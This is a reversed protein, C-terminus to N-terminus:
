LKDGRLTEKDVGLAKYVADEVGYAGEAIQDLKKRYVRPYMMGVGPFVSYKHGCKKCKYSYGIGM